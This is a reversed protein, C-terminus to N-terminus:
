NIQIGYTTIEHALQNWRDKIDKPNFAVPELRDDVKLSLKRLDSEEDWYDKGYRPSVICVDIDSYDKALNKAYSGFLYAQTVPVKTNVLSVFRKAIGVADTSSM